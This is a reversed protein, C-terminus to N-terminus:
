NYYNIYPINGRAKNICNTNGWLELHAHPPVDPFSVSLAPAGCSGAQYFWAPQPAPLCAQVTISAQLWDEPWFSM